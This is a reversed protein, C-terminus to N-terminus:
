ALARKRVSDAGPTFFFGTVLALLRAKIMKMPYRKTCGCIRQMLLPRQLHGTFRSM